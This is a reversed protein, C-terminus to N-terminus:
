LQSATNVAEPILFSPNPTLSKIGKFLFLNMYFVLGEDRKGRGQFKHVCTRLNQAILRMNDGQYARDMLLFKNNEFLPTFNLLKMGEPSDNKEGGSLSFTLAARDTATVM